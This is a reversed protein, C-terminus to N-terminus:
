VATTVAAFDLGGTVPTPSTRSSTTGDGLQGSDNGGWCYARNDSAIGCTYVGGASLRTFALSGLVRTPALRQETTGDGLGGLANSGWCYAGNDTTIGCTHEGGAAIQLFRLTGAVATPVARDELTSDGLQGRYNAGWCYASGESTLGCAHAGGTTVQTFSLTTSALVPADYNGWCYAAKDTSVGCTRSFQAFHGASLQDLSAIGQVRTPILLPPPTASPSGPPLGGWCYAAGGTTIGCTHYGGASAERFALRGKVPTPIYRSVNTSDGIQNLGNLGWCYAFRAITVGCSHFDGASQTVFTLRVSFPDSAISPLSGNQALLRFGDGPLDLSLDNFTAIGGVARVTTTGSLTARQGAPFPHDGLSITVASSDEVVINGAADEIAIRLPPDFAVQGEINGPQTLFALQSRRGGDPEAGTNCSITILLTPLLCLRKMPM